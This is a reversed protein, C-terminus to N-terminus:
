LAVGPSHAPVPEAAALASPHLRHATKDWVVVGSWLSRLYAIFARRGAMIAVVNALPIRVISRAGERWGYEYGCFMARALARWCLGGLSVWGLLIVLPSHGQPNDWGSWHLAQGTALLLEVVMLAYAATLVLALLPGRRDRLSMWIDISRESWGLRDWEQLAIGHIWRTKQRVAEGLTAPFLSRTAIGLALPASATALLTALISLTQFKLEGSPPLLALGARCALPTFFTCFVPFVATLGAALALDARALRTFVPVVPAFPAAGLLVMATATAADVRFLLSAGVTLGPVVVFNVAGLALLRRWDRLAVWVESPTLRLGAAFLLTFLAAGSLIKIALETTM